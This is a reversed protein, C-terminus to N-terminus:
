RLKSQFYEKQGPKMNGGNRSISALESALAPDKAAEGRLIAAYNAASNFKLGDSSLENRLATMADPARTQFANVAATTAGSRVQAQGLQNNYQASAAKANKQYDGAAGNSLDPMRTAGGAAPAGSPPTGGSGNRPGAGGAPPSPPTSSTGPPRQKGLEDVAAQGEKQVGQQSAPPEVGGNGLVGQGAPSSSFSGTATKIADALQSPVTSKRLAEFGSKIQEATTSGTGGGLAEFVPKGLNMTGGVQNSQGASDTSSATKTNSVQASKASQKSTDGSQTTTSDTSRSTSSTTQTGSKSGQEGGQSINSGATSSLSTRASDLTTANYTNDLSQSGNVGFRGGLGFFSRVGGQGQQPQGGAQGQQPQGGAQGQQPQGSGGGGGGLNGNLGLGMQLSQSQNRATSLGGSSTTGTETGNSTGWVNNFGTSGGIYSGNYTGSEFRTGNSISSRWGSSETKSNTQTTAATATTGTGSSQVSGASMTTSGTVQGGVSFGTATAGTIGAPGVTLTGHENTARSFGSGAYDGSTNWQNARGTDWSRNNDSWNGNGWSNSNVNGWSVNGASINGQGIADGAKQAAGQSTGMISSAVGSMAVEGGKIIALAIVPVSITLLGAISQNSLAENGLRSMNALTTGGALHVIGLLDAKDSKVAMANIIAYLPAWLQVWFMAMVYSKLVLGAKTGAIVILLFVVPFIGITVLEIASRLKPLTAAAVKAMSAYSVKASEEAMAVAASTQLCGPDSAQMSMPSSKCDRLVNAVISQRVADQASRSVGLLSAEVAPIQNLIVTTALSNGPNVRAGLASLQTTTQAALLGSLTNYAGGSGTCPMATNGVITSRAPNLAFTNGSPTTSGAIFGWLDTSKTLDDLLAPNELLEPNVCKRVFMAMDRELSPLDARVNQLEEVLRSGFAMGTKSFKEEDAPTFATEFTETLWKGIHSTESAFFAVGLPVNAVQYNTNARVDQVTVTVRPVFLAMYFIVMMTLYAVPEEGKMSVVAGGIAILLGAVAVAKMLGLFDGGNMIMAVANLVSTIQDANWYAYVTYM